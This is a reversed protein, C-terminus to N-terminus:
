ALTNEAQRITVPTWTLIGYASNGGNFAAGVTCQDELLYWQKLLIIADDFLWCFPIM